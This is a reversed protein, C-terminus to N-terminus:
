SGVRTLEIASRYARGVGSRLEEYPLWGGTLKELTHLTISHQSRERADLVATPVVFFKWQRVNM